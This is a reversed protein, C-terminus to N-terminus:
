YAVTRTSSSRSLQFVYRYMANPEDQAAAVPREPVNLPSSPSYVVFQGPEDGTLVSPACTDGHSPLDAVFAVRKESAVYHFLACRRGSTLEALQNQVTRVLGSGEGIDYRGDANVKRQGVLYVEGDYSFLAASGYHNADNVCDWDTWNSAAALCVSSGWGQSDGAEKRVVALLNGDDNSAFSADSGGGKYVVWKGASPPHWALGDRSTLMRVELNDGGLRYIGIGGTYTTMLPVGEVLRVQSLVHGPLNLSVPAVWQGAATLRSAQINTERGLGPDSTTYLFLENGVSLLKPNLAAEAEPLAFEQRWNREDTSSIVRVEVDSDTGPRVSRLAVYTRNAHRAADVSSFSRASPAVIPTSSETSLRQVDELKFAHKGAEAAPSAVAPLTTDAVTADAYWAVSRTVLLGLVAPV